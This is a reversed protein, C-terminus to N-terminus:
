LLVVMTFVVYVGLALGTLGAATFAANGSKM